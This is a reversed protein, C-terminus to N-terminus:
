RQAFDTRRRTVPRAAAGDLFDARPRPAFFGDAVARAPRPIKFQRNAIAGLPAMPAFRLIEALFERDAAFNDKGGLMADYVRAANPKSVDFDPYKGDQAGM